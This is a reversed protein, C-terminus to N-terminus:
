DAEATSVQRVVVVHTVNTKTPGLKVVNKGHTQEMNFNLSDLRQSMNIIPQHYASLGIPRYADGQDRSTGLHGSIDRSTGLRLHEKRACRATRKATEAALMKAAPCADRDLCLPLVLSRTASNPLFPCKRSSFPSSCPQHGDSGVGAEGRCRLRVTHLVAPHVEILEHGKCRHRAADDGGHHM